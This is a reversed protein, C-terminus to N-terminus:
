AGIEGRLSKIDMELSELRGFVENMGENLRRVQDYLSALEARVTPRIPPVGPPNACQAPVAHPADASNRYDFDM